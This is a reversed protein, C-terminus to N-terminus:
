FGWWETSLQSDVTDQTQHTNDGMVQGCSGWRGKSAWIDEKEVQSEKQNDM